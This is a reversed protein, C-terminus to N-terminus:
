RLSAVMFILKVQDALESIKRTKAEKIDDSDLETPEDLKWTLLFADGINKNASGNCQVIISHM